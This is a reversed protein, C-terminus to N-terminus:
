CGNEVANHEGAGWSLGFKVAAITAAARNQEEHWQEKNWWQWLDLMGSDVVDWAAIHEGMGMTLCSTTTWTSEAAAARAREEDWLHYLDM